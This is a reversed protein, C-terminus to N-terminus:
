VRTEFVATNEENKMPNRFEDVQGSYSARTPYSSCSYNILKLIDKRRQLCVVLSDFFQVFSEIMEYPVPFGFVFLFTIILSYLSPPSLIVSRKENLLDKFVIQILFCRSLVFM